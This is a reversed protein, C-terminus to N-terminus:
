RSQGSLVAPSSRTLHDQSPQELHQKWSTPLVRPGLGIFRDMRRPYYGTSGSAGPFSGPVPPISEIAPLEDLIPLWAYDSDGLDVNVPIKELQGAPVQRPHDHRVSSFSPLLTGAVLLLCAAIGLAAAMNTVRKRANVSIVRSTPREVHARQKALECLRRITLNALYNPCLDVPMDSLPALASEIQCHMEAAVHDHAILEEAELARPPLCQGLCYDFILEREQHDLWSM